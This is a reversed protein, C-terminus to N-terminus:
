HLPFSRPRKGSSPPKRTGLCSPIADAATLLTNVQPAFGIYVFGTLEAERWLRCLM